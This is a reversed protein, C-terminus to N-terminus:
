WRCHKGLLEWAANARKSQLGAEERNVQHRDPHWAKMHDIYLKKVDEKRARKKAIGFFIWAEDVTEPVKDRTLEVPVVVRSGASAVPSPEPAAVSAVRPAWGTRASASPSAQHYGSSAQFLAQGRFFAHVSADVDGDNRLVLTAVQSVLLTDFSMAGGFSVESFIMAPIASAGFLQSDRGFFLGEVVLSDLFPSRLFLRDAQYPVQPRTLLSATSRAAITVVPFELPMGRLRVGRSANM